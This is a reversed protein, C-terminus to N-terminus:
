KGDGVNPGSNQDSLAVCMMKLTMWILVMIGLLGMFPYNVLVSIMLIVPFLIIVFLYYFIVGNTWRQIPKLKM